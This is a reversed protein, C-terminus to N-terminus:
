AADGPPEPRPKRALCVVTSGFPLDVLRVLRAEARLLAALLSNVIAPPQRFDSRAEAPPPLGRARQWSRVALLPLFLLANTCTLREIRFGARELAARLGARTYRRREHVFVSHEGRLAEFAPVSVVAGGGPRLVRFMEAIAAREEADELCYLVDFSTVVDFVAAVFPMRCATACAVRRAGRERGLLLGSLTLDIGCAVGLEALLGLNAGTGCGADLLRRPRGGRVAAALFPRVFSRFGRYWFHRREAAHTERILADM